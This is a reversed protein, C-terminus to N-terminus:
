LSRRLSLILAFLRVFQWCSARMSLPKSQSSSPLITLLLLLLLPPTQRPIIPLPDFHKNEQLPSHLVVLRAMLTKMVRTTMGEEEVVTMLQPLLTKENLPVSVLLAMSAHHPTALVGHTLQQPQSLKFKIECSSPPLSPPLSPYLHSSPLRDSLPSRRM